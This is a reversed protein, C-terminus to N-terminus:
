GIQGNCELIEKSEKNGLNHGLSLLHNLLSIFFVM